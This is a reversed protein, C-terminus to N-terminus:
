RPARRRACRGDPRAPSFRAAGAGVAGDGQEGFSSEYPRDGFCRQWAIMQGGAGNREVSSIIIRGNTEFDLSGSQLQVGIFVDNVDLERVQPLALVSGGVAIRSANDAATLAIGSVRTHTVMLNAVELGALGAFILTPMTLAAELAAVARTERRLRRLLPKLWGKPSPAAPANMM